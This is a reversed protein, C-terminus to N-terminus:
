YYYFNFPLQYASPIYWQLHQMHNYSTMKWDITDRVEYTALPSLSSPPFPRRIYHTTVLVNLLWDRVASLNQDELTAIPLRGLMGVDQSILVSCFTVCPKPSQRIKHFYWLLPFPFMLLPIQNNLIHMPWTWWFHKCLM